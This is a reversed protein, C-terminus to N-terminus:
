WRERALTMADISRNRHIAAFRRASGSGKRFSGREWLSAIRAAQREQVSPRNADHVGDGIAYKVRGYEDFVLTIGGLLVLPTDDPMDAPKAIGYMALEGARLSLQQLIEAVTERLAFGDEPALRICPRVSIVRTYAGDHLRLAERNEWAFRFVEDPDRQMPEFRTRDYSFALPSARQWEPDPRAAGAADRSAHGIGFRRFAELLHERFRYREDAPRVERDATLMASLFTGFELHVPPCYDLARIAMTLLYDAIASGEEAARTRDVTRVNPEALLAVLRHAWVSLFANMLASVLIEGRRHPEQYEARGLYEPSPELVASHRLASRGTPGMESGLEKGLGLLVSSSLKERRVDSARLPKAADGEGGEGLHLDMVARVVEPLAFVSLLAVVDAFGEHFAAQDPSSPEMFRKRLGDLIAHSTEHAVVDHSLCTFVTREGDRSPFHGFLLAEDRRSYFANADAFAHPAVKIQHGPSDFGWSVRRGLAFEFRALTRMVIAYVNQAHFGPDREVVSDPVQAAPNELWDRSRPDPDAYEVPPYLRGSSADYDIVHVRYGRPGPALEEAPVDVEATLIRGGVRVSPDQAVIRMRRLRAQPLQATAVPAGAIASPRTRRPTAGDGGARPSALTEM